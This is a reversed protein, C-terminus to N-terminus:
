YMMAWSGLYVQSVETNSFRLTVSSGTSTIPNVRGSYVQQEGGGFDAYCELWGITSVSTPYNTVDTLLRGCRKSTANESIGVTWSEVELSVVNPSSLLATSALTLSGRLSISGRSGVQVHGGSTPTSTFTFPALCDNYIINSFGSQQLQASRKLTLLDNLDTPDRTLNLSDDVRVPIYSGIDVQENPAVRRVAVLRSDGLVTTHSDFLYFTGM